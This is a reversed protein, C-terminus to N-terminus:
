KRARVPGPPSSTACIPRSILYVTEKRWNDPAIRNGLFMEMGGWSTYKSRGGFKRSVGVLLQGIRTRQLALNLEAAGRPMAQPGFVTAVGFPGVMENNGLYVIWFDGDHRACERAIPLIVHSNIATIGLNILEFRNEPFRDRLMVELYRSAGYAPQPDGMAASEGLIFIRITDPSKVAPILFPEPWRALQPPFFRLTFNENNIFYDQADRHIETFFATPYGYGALRLAVELAGLLVPPVVLLALLRFLRLRGPSLTNAPDRHRSPASPQNPPRGALIKAGPKLKLNRFLRAEVVFM